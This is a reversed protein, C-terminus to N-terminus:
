PLMYNLQADAKMYLPHYPQKNKTMKFCRLPTRNEVMMKVVAEGRKMFEGDRGWAAVIIQSCHASAILQGDTVWGGVPDAARKMDEPMTARFAFLNTMLLGGCGWRKAFEKCRRITPDDKMEDATSPNLGIFQCLPLADNWVIKL